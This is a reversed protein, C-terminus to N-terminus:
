AHEEAPLSETRVHVPPNRETLTAYVNFTQSTHHKAPAWASRRWRRLQTETGTLVLTDGAAVVLDNSIPALVQQDRRLAVLAATGLYRKRLDTVTNGVIPSAAAVVVDELLLDTREGPLLTEVFHVASPRVALMAMQQGAM